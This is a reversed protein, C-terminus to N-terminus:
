ATTAQRSAAPEIDTSEKRRTSKLVIVGAATVVMGILIALVWLFPKSVLGVVWIGGHPARSEDGFGMVLAGTVA